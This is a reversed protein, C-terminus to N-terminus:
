DSLGLGITKYQYINRSRKSNPGTASFEFLDQLMAIYSLQHPGSIHSSKKPCINSFSLSIKGGNHVQYLLMWFTKEKPNQTQMLPCPTPVVDSDPRVSSAHFIVGQRKGDHCTHAAKVECKSSSLFHDDYTISHQTELRVMMLDPFEYLCM